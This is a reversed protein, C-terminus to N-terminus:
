LVLLNDCSHSRRRSVGGFIKGVLQRAGTLDLCIKEVLQRAGTLNLCIKEVLQRAGTLDLCCPDALEEDGCGFKLRRDRQNELKIKKFIKFRVVVKKDIM